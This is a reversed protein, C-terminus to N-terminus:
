CSGFHQSYDNPTNINVLINPDSVPVYLNKYRMLFDRLIWHHNEETIIDSVLKRSILVPHGRRGDYAPCIVDAKMNAYALAELVEMSIFPNDINHFFVHSQKSVANLGCQLSYFRGYEPTNNLVFRIRSSIQNEQTTLKKFVQRNVVLFIEQCGFDLFAKVCADMFTAGPSFELFLKPTGMRSSDGAALLVAAFRKNWQNIREVSKM